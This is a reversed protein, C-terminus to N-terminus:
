HCAVACSLVDKSPYEVLDYDRDEWFFIWVYLSRQTGRDLQISLPSKVEGATSRPRKNEKGRAVTSDSSTRGSVSGCDHNSSHHQQLATGNWLGRQVLGRALVNLSSRVSSFARALVPRRGRVTSWHTCSSRGLPRYAEKHIVVGHVNLWAFKTIIGTKM